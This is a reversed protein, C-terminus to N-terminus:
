QAGTNSPWVRETACNEREVVVMARLPMPMDDDLKVHHAPIGRGRRSLLISTCAPSIQAPNRQSM